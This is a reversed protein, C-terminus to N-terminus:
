PAYHTKFIFDEQSQNFKNDKCLTSWENLFSKNGNLAAQNGGANNLRDAFSKYPKNKNLYGIYDQMTGPKTAIQYKGFSYGGNKDRGVACYNNNSEEMGSLTGLKYINSTQKNSTMQNNTDTFAPQIRTNNENPKNLSEDYYSFDGLPGTMKVEGGYPHQKDWAYELAERTTMEEMPKYPTQTQNPTYATGWAQNQQQNENLRQRRQEETEWPNYNKYSNTM